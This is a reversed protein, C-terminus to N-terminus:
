RNRDKYLPAYMDMEWNQAAWTTEGLFLAKATRNVRKMKAEVVKAAVIATGAPPSKCAAM